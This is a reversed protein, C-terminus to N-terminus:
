RKYRKTKVPPPPVDLPGYTPPGIVKYLFAYAVSFTAGLVIIFISTLALVAYLNDQSQLFLWVSSLFTVKWLLTPLIPPGLLQYPIPWGKDIAIPVVLQAVAFSLLPVILIMLCGIGRWIPHPRLPPPPTKKFSMTTYKPM